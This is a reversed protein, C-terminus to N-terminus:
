EHIAGQQKVDEALSLLRGIFAAETEITITNVITKFDSDGILSPFATKKMNLLQIFDEFLPHNVLHVIQQDSLSM